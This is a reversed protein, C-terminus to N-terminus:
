AQYPIIPKIKKRLGFQLDYIQNTNELFKYLRAHMVREYFKCLNSLLSIPKYNECKNKDNKKYIPCVDALRLLMPFNGELISLNLLIQLPKLFLLAHTKFLQNPISNPGSSKSVIIEDFHKM